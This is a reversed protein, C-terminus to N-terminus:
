CAGGIPAQRKATSSQRVRCKIPHTPDNLRFIEALRIQNPQTLDALSFARLESMFAGLASSLVGKLLCAPEVSCGKRRQADFCDVLAFDPEIATVVDAVTISSPELALAVGGARGRTSAVLGKAVLKAVIRMTYDKSLDLKASIEPITASRGPKAALFMMIRLSFDTQANLRM